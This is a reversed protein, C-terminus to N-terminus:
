CFRPQDSQRGCGSQRGWGRQWFRLDWGFGFVEQLILYLLDTQFAPQVLQFAPHLSRIRPPAPCSPRLRTKRGGSGARLALVGWGAGESSGSLINDSFIAYITKKYVSENALSM